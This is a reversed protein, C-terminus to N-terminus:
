RRAIIFKNKKNMNSIARFSALDDASAIITIIIIITIFAKRAYVRISYDVANM